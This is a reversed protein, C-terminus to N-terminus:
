IGERWRIHQRAEDLASNCRRRRWRGHQGEEPCTALYVVFSCADEIRDVGQVDSVVVAQSQRFMYLRSNLSVQNSLKGNVSLVAVCDIYYVDEQHKLVKLVYPNHMYLIRVM